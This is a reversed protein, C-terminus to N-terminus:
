FHYERPQYYFTRMMCDRGYTTTVCDMSPSQSEEKAHKLAQAFSGNSSNESVETFTPNYHERKVKGVNPVAAVSHVMFIGTFGKM